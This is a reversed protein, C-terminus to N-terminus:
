KSGALDAGKKGPSGPAAKLPVVVKKHINQRDKGLRVTLINVGDARVPIYFWVQRYRGLPSGAGDCPELTLTHMGPGLRGSWIFLRGPLFTWCRIDAESRVFSSLLGGFGPLQALVEKAIGKGLRISDMEGWGHSAAQDYLDDALCASGTEANDWRVLVKQVPCPFRRMRVMSQGPGYSQKVPGLGAGILLFTNSRSLHPYTLMASGGAYQRALKLHVEANDKEGLRDYAVATFYHGAVFDKKKAFDKTRTSEDALLSRRFAALAREDERGKLYLVGALLHAMSREYPDGRFVKQYESWVVAETDRGGTIAEMTTAAGRLARIAGRHNGGEFCASAYHLEHFAYDKHSKDPVKPGLLQQAQRYKHQHFLQYPNAQCGGLAATLLIQLLGSVTLGLVRAKPLKTKMRNGM